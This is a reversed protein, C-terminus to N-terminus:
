LYQRRHAFKEGVQYHAGELALRAEEDRESPWYGLNTGYWPTKLHLEPLGEAQWIALAREMFERKPLSTPPYAWKRTADILM